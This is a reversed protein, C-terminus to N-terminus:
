TDSPTGTLTETDVGTHINCWIYGHRYRHTHERTHVEILIGTHIGTHKDRFAETSAHRHGADVWDCLFGPSGMGGHVVGPM